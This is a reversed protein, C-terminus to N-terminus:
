RRDAQRRRGASLLMALGLGAGGIGVGSSTGDCGCGRDAAGITSGIDANLGDITSSLWNTGDTAYVAYYYGHRKKATEDVYTVPAGVEAAADYVVDGDEPGTPFADDGRVVVVREVPAFRPNTWTLTIGGEEEDGAAFDSIALRNDPTSPAYLCVDDLNWGGMSLGEDSGLEWQLVVSGDDGAGALDVVSAAWQADRTHEDGESSAHNSWVENGDALLRAHDFQADEVTLWRRYALFVGQYAGTSLAPSSLRNTKENQYEGNYDGDGLDNGWVHDGSYAATPDGAQGMPVGWQWDDAGLSEEGDILEHTFGGDGAEFDECSVEIVDGQYYSFPHIAGGVPAQISDGEDNTIRVYYEVFSGDTQVPIAGSATVDAVSLATEQWAGGDVRWRVSASTPNWAVCQEIANFVSSDIPAPEGSPWAVEPSLLARVPGGSGSQPGLGHGSFAEVITCFHPTGNELNADDDDAFVAEDYSTEIVPNGKLLGTFIETVAATGQEEGLQTNLLGWLDWLSGGFILGNDHVYLDNTIFDQPYVRDPAVDRIGDGNTMFNPSIIHDGTQLFAVVDAAGEGISGDPYENGPISYAHFGHGWEHYNVDAIRGTNNCGGGAKFFNLNGDYYANCTQNANVHSTIKDRSMRVEPAVTAAWLRVDHIFRYTHLEAQTADETTWVLEPGTFDVAGEPGGDNLVKVYTGDLVTHLAAGDGATVFAGDADATVTETGDTVRVFPLPSAVVEDGVTRLEHEGLVTGTAFRVDNYVAVLTGDTADVFSVWKGRPEITESRVQWVLRLQVKGATEEPLWMLQSEGLEHPSTAAPGSAIATRAATTGDINATGVRPAKPYTDIGLMVLKGHEIRASVGGRYVPHGEFLVDADVYIRDTREIRLVDHVRLQGSDVGALGHRTVFDVVSKSLVDDAATNMPIGAGWMRHATGTKEDFRAAWGHGEGGTFKVWSPDKALDLQVLPDFRWIRQPEVGQYVTGPAFAVASSSALLAVLLLSRSM